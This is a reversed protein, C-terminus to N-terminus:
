SQSWQSRRDRERYAFGESMISGRVADQRLGTRAHLGLVQEGTGANRSPAAAGFHGAKPSVTTPEPLGDPLQAFGSQAPPRFRRPFSPTRTHRGGRHGGARVCVGNAVRAVPLGGPAPVRETSRFRAESMHVSSRFGSCPTAEESGGFFSACSRALNAAAKRSRGVIESSWFSAPEGLTLPM